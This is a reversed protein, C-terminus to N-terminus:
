TEVLQLTQVPDFIQQDLYFHLNMGLSFKVTGLIKHLRDVNVLSLFSILNYVVSLVAPVEFVV